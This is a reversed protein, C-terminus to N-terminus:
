GASRIKSFARSVTENPKDFCETEFAVWYGQSDVGAAVKSALYEDVVYENGVAISDTAKQCSSRDDIKDEQLIGVAKGVTEAPHSECESILSPDMSPVPFFEIPVDVSGSNVAV